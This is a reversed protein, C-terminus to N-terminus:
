GPLTTLRVGPRFIVGTPVETCPLLTTVVDFRWVVAVLTTGELRWVDAAVVTVGELRWVATVVLLLRVGFTFIFLVTRLLLDVLLEVLLDVRLLLLM